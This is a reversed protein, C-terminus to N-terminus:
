PGGRAKWTLPPGRLFEVLEDYSFGGRAAVRYASQHTPFRASYARWAAEHEEWSVTGPRAGPHGPARSRSAHVPARDGHMATFRRCEARVSAVLADLDCAREVHYRSCVVDVNGKKWFGEPCCVVVTAEHVVLGLELLSIPSRTGPSFYLVIVDAREIGDLEWGVQESFRPDSESEEWSADWDDRTPDLLTGTEDALQVAVRRRWPETGSTSGALFVWPRPGDVPSPAVIEKM